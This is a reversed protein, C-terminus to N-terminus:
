LIDVIAGEARRFYYIGSVTAVVAVLASLVLGGTAPRPVDALLAWRFGEVAGAM